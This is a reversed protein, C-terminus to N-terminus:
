GNLASSFRRKGGKKAKYMEEDASRLLAESSTASEPYIAVGISASIELTLAGISFSASLSEVLKSAILLSGAKGPQILIVAFEDGGMRAALDSDRINKQIRIAVAKLLEDGVDHGHTDNVAKFGDLDIYLIALSGSIRKSVKLQQQVLEGFLARNALGTLVDHQAEYQAQALIESAHTLARGVEDAEALGLPAVKVSAGTGLAMAPETLAHISRSISNAIAWALGVSATLLVALTFLLGWLSALLDRTFNKIPIGMAVSWRTVPSRSFASIVPIGELTTIEVSGEDIEALRKIIGPAGQKGIFRAREHSRAVITGTSDFIAIIWDRPLNQQLLFKSLRDSLLSASIQYVVADGHRVPVGISILPERHLSGLYFDSIVPRGTEFIQRALRPNDYLPLSEGYPTRTDVLQQGNADSLTIANVHLERLVEQAQDYFAAYNNQQLLRSTALVQLGSEVTALDKDVSLAMLRVTSIANSVRQAKQQHYNYFVFATAMLSVPLMCGLVLFILRSRITPRMAVFISILLTTILFVMAFGAVAGAMWTPDFSQPTVACISGEAFSAATMGTYHMGTIAAGMTLAGLIKKWLATGLTELRLQFCIWLAATAALIAILVSLSFYLPDYTIRPQMRMAEMGVYHMGVFGAGMVMGAMILRRYSLRDCSVTYLAWRSALMAILLSLLTLSIDYSISIPLSFALMGIFHMAWIGTGLSVAGGARWYPASRGGRVAVVRSALDLAVFSAVIAIVISLAVLSFNYHGLM